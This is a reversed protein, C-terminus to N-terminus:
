GPSGTCTPHLDSAFIPPFSHNQFFKGIALLPLIKPHHAPWKILLASSHFSSQAGLIHSNSCWYWQLHPNSNNQVFKNTTYLVFNNDILKTNVLGSHLLKHVEEALSYHGRNYVAKDRHRCCLFSTSNCVSKFLLKVNRLNNSAVVPSM